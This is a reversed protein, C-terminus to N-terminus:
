FYKSLKKIWYEKQEYPLGAAVKVIDDPRNVATVVEDLYRDLGYPPQIKKGADSIRKFLESWDRASPEGDGPIWQIGAITDISLIKDLHRLEGVGDLHYFPRYLRSSTDRLEGFVFEDFHEPSIMFCFDSQMMYSPKESFIGCWDSYGQQEGIEENIEDYFRRWLAAAEGVLRSIEEPEDYLDYLLNETTLFSALIDMIGGLDIMGLCVNGGWRKRGARYIDKVRRLWVNDPDYTLHLDAASVPNEPSFWVTEPTCHADCGLFAAVVGPGFHTMQMIPFSDGLFECCSFYYDWRDIVAEPPISFDGANAFSPMPAKPEAMGPDKGYFIMPLLPRHLENKWWKRTNQRITDWQKDTFTFM